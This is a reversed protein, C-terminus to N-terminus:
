GNAWIYEQEKKLTDANLKTRAATIYAGGGDKGASGLRWLTVLKMMEEQTPRLLSM